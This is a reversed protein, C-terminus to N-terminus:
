RGKGDEGVPKRCEELVSKLKAAMDQDTTLFQKQMEEIRSAKQQQVWERISLGGVKEIGQQAALAECLSVLTDIEVEQILTTLTLTQTSLSSETKAM